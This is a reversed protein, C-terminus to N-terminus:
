GGQVAPVGGRIDRVTWEQAPSPAQATKVLQLRYARTERAGEGAQPNQWSVWVWAETVAGVDWSYDPDSGDVGEPFFVKSRVIQPEELSGSLGGKAAAGADPTILRQLTSRDSAGWARFFQTFFEGDELALALANDTAAEPAPKAVGVLTPQPMEGIEGVIRMGEAERLNKVYVPVDVIRSGADTLVRVAMMRAHGDYGPNDIPESRGTWTADTVYQEGKGNWGCMPDVGDVVYAAIDRKRQAIAAPDPNHTLCLRAFDAAFRGASEVPFESLRYRQVDGEDLTYSNDQVAMAGFSFAVYAVTGLALLCVTLVLTARVFAHTGRGGSFRGGPPPIEFDERERAPRPRKRERDPRSSREALGATGTDRSRAPPAAERPAAHPTATATARSRGTPRDSVGDAPPRNAGSRGGERRYVPEGSPSSWLPAQSPLAQSPAPAAAQPPRPVAPGYDEQGTTEYAGVEQGPAVPASRRSLRQRSVAPPVVPQEGTTPWAAEAGDAGDAFDEPPQGAPPPAGPAAGPAPRGPGRDRQWSFRMRSLPTTADNPETM